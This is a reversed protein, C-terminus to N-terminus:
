NNGNNAEFLKKYIEPFPNDIWTKSLHDLLTNKFFISFDIVGNNTAHDFRETSQIGIIGEVKSREIYPNSIEACGYFDFTKIKNNKDIFFCHPYLATKYYGADRLDKVINFIQERWTPCELDLNRDSLIIHNLTEKNWEILIKRNELDLELLKPAWEFEQCAMLYKVERKFFFDVLEKTLSNPVRQYPSNEDWVMCMTNGDPSVFPTYLMNTEVLHRGRYDIKYLYEWGTTNIM